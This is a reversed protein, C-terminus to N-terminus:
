SCRRCGRAGRGAGPAAFAGLLEDGSRPPREPRPPELLDFRRLSDLLREEVQGAWRTPHKTEIALDVRRGADAVLELLRDLTLM